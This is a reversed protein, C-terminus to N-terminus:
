WPYKKRGAEDDLSDWERQAKDFVCESEKTQTEDSCENSQRTVAATKCLDGPLDTKIHGMHKGERSIIRESELGPCQDVCSSEDDESSANEALIEELLDMAEQPTARGVPIQDPLVENASM